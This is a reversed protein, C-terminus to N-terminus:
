RNSPPRRGSIHSYFPHADAFEAFSNESTVKKRGKSVSISAFPFVNTMKGRAWEEAMISPSLSDFQEKPESVNLQAEAGNSAGSVM